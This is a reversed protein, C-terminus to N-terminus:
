VEPNMMTGIFLPLKTENDVIAYVFPRNLIIERQILDVGKTRMEVKTAAGAKTGETDVSITTKHLVDGIWINDKIGSTMKQFNANEGDFCEKLGMQMLPEVLKMSYDSKFKPLAASVKEESKNKILNIFSKGTLSSVYSDISIGKNPLLAVFSYKEDKYPKIFGQAKGDKIYGEELSYMFDTNKKTGDALQFGGRRVNEKEYPKVWQADFYVANILYMITNSDIKDIIKDIQNGTNAKVWNNIDNITNKSNFDVKYAAANYYDANAQLFDKKVDLSEDDRYWISNAISVKSSQASTLNDALSNYYSNIDKMNISRSGLLTEFEKLTNGDAGNATMGLALYVSTPSVLSNIGKTYAKKFLNVSFDATSQLFEEGLKVNEVKQPTISKMLDDAHVSMTVKKSFVGTFFVIFAIVAAMAPIGIFQFRKFSTKRAKKVENILRLKSEQSMDLRDLNTDAIKKLDELKIM